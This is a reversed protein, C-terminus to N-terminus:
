ILELINSPDQFDLIKNPDQFDLIRNEALPVSSIPPKVTVTYPKGPTAILSLTTKRAM